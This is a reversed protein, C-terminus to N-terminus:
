LLWELVPKAVVQPSSLLPIHSQGNLVAIQAAPQLAALMPQLGLPVVTDAECLLHLCPVAAEAYLGRYDHRLLALSDQLSQDSPAVEAMLGKLQKLDSRAASGGQTQLMNFRQLTKGANDVLASEFPQYVSEPMACPWDPRQVFCPNSALTIVRSVQQPFRQALAVAVTGGLSWGFVVSRDPIVQGIQECVAAMTYPQPLCAASRGLGPLDILLVNFQKELLPLLSHWVGSHMGWGHLLVLPEGDPNGVSEVYLSM